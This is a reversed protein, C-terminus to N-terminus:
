KKWATSGDPLTEIHEATRRIPVEFGNKELCLRCILSHAFPTNPIHYLNVDPRKCSCDGHGVYLARYTM